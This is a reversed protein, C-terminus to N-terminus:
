GGILDMFEDGPKVLVTGFGLEAAADLNKQSDDLFITEEPKIGLHEIAYKFIRTDPKIAKAKYSLVMGDFYDGMEKGCVRFYRKIDSEIMIPNTNSLLYVKYRKRLEDLEELRHPPIGLLFKCFARDIEDDSVDGNIRRKIEARFEAATISGEELALFVGKQAYEGLLDNADAMGLAEFAKVCNERKIDMIVGGLDFLLNKIETKNM